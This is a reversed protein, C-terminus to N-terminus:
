KNIISNINIVTQNIQQISQLYKLQIDTATQLAYLYEVYSTDGTQYSLQAVKIIEDANPLAQTKYYNYQQVDLRYQALSNQLQTNFLTTQYKAQTQVSQKQYELSKIRAKTSGFSLPIALGINVVNFRNGSGFYRDTGDITQFGILSQNTYGIKFDPLGQAKEVKITQEAIQMNQYLSQLIPHNAIASSDILNNVQLPTYTSHIAITISDSTNLLTKLSIYANQLYVENQQTLLHIEGKKTEAIKIESKKTDGAKYRLNTV